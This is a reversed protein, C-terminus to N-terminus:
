INTAPAQGNDLLDDLRLGVSDAAEGTIFAWEEVLKERLARMANREELSWEGRRRFRGRLDRVLRAVDQLSNELQVRRIENNRANRDSALPRPPRLLIEIVMEIELPDSIPRMQQSDMRDVPIWFTSDRTQIRYYDANKGSIDKEEIAKIQGIGFSAHVLWDNISFNHSTTM